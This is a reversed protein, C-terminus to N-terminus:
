QSEQTSFFLQHLVSFSDKAESLREESFVNVCTSFNIKGLGFPDIKALVENFKHGIDLTQCLGNFEDHTLLGDHDQDIEKFCGCFPALLTEHSNLDYSLIINQFDTFSIDDQTGKAKSPSSKSNITDRVLKEMYVAEEQTYMSTIISGWESEELKGQLKEKLTNALNSERVYPSNSALKLKLLQKIREKVKVLMYRFDENVEHKIIKSFLRIEADESEYRNVAKMIAFTWETIITKLGFKQNLYTYMFQDMTETAQHSERCKEDFKVKTSYVEEITEKLQKFGLERGQAIRNNMLITNNPVKPTIEKRFIKIPSQPVSIEATQKSLSIIKHLFAKNEKQLLDLAGALEDQTKQLQQTLNENKSTLEIVKQELTESVLLITNIEEQKVALETDFSNAQAKLKDSHKLALDCLDFANSFIPKLIRGMDAFKSELYPVLLEWNYRWIQLKGKILHLEYNPSVASFTKKLYDQFNDLLTARRSEEYCDKIEDFNAAFEELQETTLGEM